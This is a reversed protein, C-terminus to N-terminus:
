AIGFLAERAERVERFKRVERVATVSHRRGKSRVLNFRRFNSADEPLQLM